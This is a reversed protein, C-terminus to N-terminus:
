LCSLMVAASTLRNSRQSLIEKAGQLSKSQGAFEVTNIIPPTVGRWVGWSKRGQAKLEYDVTPLWSFSVEHSVEDDKPLSTLSPTWLRSVAHM